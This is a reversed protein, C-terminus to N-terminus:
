FKRSKLYAEMFEDLNGNLVGEPDKSEFNTRHDKVMKYPHLVYSRIQSGWEPSHFEGRLEERELADEALKLQYLKAQLIHLAQEKNQSQSRENQCAVTLGTPIHTLRVATEVKNVNQGGHGGARYFDIKLDKDEIKENHAKPTDPIVEILAFSTHRAHDADYPSLRVLRHVGSESKLWGFANLGKILITASKIGAEEGRTEALVKSTFGKNEAYRLIMRKLMEAWDQAETGGAGAHFSVLADGEDYAGNFLTQLELKEIQESTIANEFEQIQRTVDSLKRTLNEGRERDQWFDPTAMKEQIELILRKKGDIDLLKHLENKRDEITM